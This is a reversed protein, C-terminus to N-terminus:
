MYAAPRNSRLSRAGPKPPLIGEPALGPGAGLEEVLEFLQCVWQLLEDPLAALEAARRAGLGPMKRTGM